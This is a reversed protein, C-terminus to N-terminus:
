ADPGHDWEREVPREGRQLLGKLSYPEFFEPCIALNIQEPPVQLQTL